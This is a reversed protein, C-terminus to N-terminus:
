LVCVGLISYAGIKLIVTDADNFVLAISVYLVCVAKGLDIFYAVKSYCFPLCLLLLLLSLSNAAIILYLNISQSLFLAFIAIAYPELTTVVWYGFTLRSPRLQNFLVSYNYRDFRYFIMYLSILLVQISLLCVAFTFNAVNETIGSVGLSCILRIQLLAPYTLLM